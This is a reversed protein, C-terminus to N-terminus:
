FKYSVGAILMFDNEKKGAAPRSNYLDSAVVRLSLDKVIPAEVGLEAALTFNGWDDIQPLYTLSEWLRAKEGLKQEFRENFRLTAYDDAIGGKKVWMYGPGFEGALTTKPKKIFYYGVGPSLNVQYDIDAIGDYLADVRGYAYFKETFLYNYQGYGLALENNNEGDSKGYAGKAGFLWEDREGKRKTEIGATVLLTDSNGSTYSFGANVSSEWKPAPPLETPPPTTVQARAVSAGALCLTATSTVILQNTNM